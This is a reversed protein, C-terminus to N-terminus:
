NDIYETDILVNIDFKDASIKPHILFIADLTLTKTLGKSNTKTINNRIFGQRYNIKQLTIYKKSEARANVRIYANEKGKLKFKFNSSNLDHGGLNILQPYNAKVVTIFALERDIIEIATVDFCFFLLSFFVKNTFLRYM